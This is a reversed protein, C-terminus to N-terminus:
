PFGQSVIVLIIDSTLTSLELSELNFIVNGWWNFSDALKTYRLSFIFSANISSLM